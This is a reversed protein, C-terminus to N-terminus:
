QGNHIKQAKQRFLHAQQAEGKKEYLLALYVLSEYHSPQLDVAKQFFEEARENHGIAHQM